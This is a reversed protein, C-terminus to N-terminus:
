WPQRRRKSAALEIKKQDTRKKEIAKEEKGWAGQTNKLLSVFASEIETATVVDVVPYLYLGESSPVINLVTEPTIVLADRLVKPIVIQGKANTTTLYGVKM